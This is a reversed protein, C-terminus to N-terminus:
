YRRAKEKWETMFEKYHRYRSEAIGGRELEALVACGPEHIHTCGRFKCGQALERFERFCSGIEDIGLEQFDLQSFGPTDAVFGGSPLEVLEVHRTTHKGRGLKESIENTEMTLGPVLANLLSSKGVGSQGAFVNVHGALLGRLEELGTGQRASVALVRYGIGEYLAVADDIDRGIRGAEESREAADLKTLVILADMGAHEIHVLFKDLLQLNLEPRIVSFVLVAQDANAVPPRILSSSRPLIGNVAGEGNETEEYVVRDGVLPSEGRKKFIGRARCQITMDRQEDSVYYYGSLAKVIIGERENVTPRAADNGKKKM